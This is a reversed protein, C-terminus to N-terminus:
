KMLFLIYFFFSNTLVILAMVAEELTSLEILAMKSGEKSIWKFNTIAGHKAFLEQVQDQSTM